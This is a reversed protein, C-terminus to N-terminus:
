AKTSLTVDLDSEILRLISSLDEREVGLERMMAARTTAALQDRAAAVRRSITAAHVGHLAGLDEVGLHHRYRQQLLLRASAPLEQLASRFARQFVDGYTKRMYALELDDAISGPAHDDDLEAHRPTRRILRLGTRVAVSRLWGGLRGRGGYDLIRPPAGERPALLEARMTQLTEDIASADLGLRALPARLPPVHERELTALAEPDGAACGLALYLDAVELADDGSAALLRTLHETFQAEDVAIAPRAERACAYATRLDM